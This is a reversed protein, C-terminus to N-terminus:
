FIQASKSKVQSDQNFFTTQELHISIMLTSVDQHM